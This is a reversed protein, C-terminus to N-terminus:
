GCFNEPVAQEILAITREISEVSREIAKDFSEGMQTGEFKISAIDLRAAFGRHFDVSWDPHPDPDPIPPWWPPLKPMKPYTPCWDDLENFAIGLDFGFRDALWVNHIFEAAIAAGLEHSPLYPQPPPRHTSLGLELFQSKPGRPFIFDYIAPNRRALISLLTRNTIM